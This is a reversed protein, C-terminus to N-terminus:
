VKGIERLVQYLGILATHYNVMKIYGDKVETQKEIKETFKDIIQKKEDITM